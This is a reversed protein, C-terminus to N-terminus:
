TNVQKGQRDLFAMQSEPSLSLKGFKGVYMPTDLSEEESVKGHSTPQTFKLGHTIHVQHTGPIRKFHLKIVVEGAKDHDIVAAAVRSLAVSLKHDFMGGDLDTIFEGVDTAASTSETVLKQAM